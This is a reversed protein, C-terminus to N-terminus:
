CGQVVDAPRKVYTRSTGIILGPALRASIKPLMAGAGKGRQSPIRVQM